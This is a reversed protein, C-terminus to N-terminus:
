LPLRPTLSKRMTQAVVTYGSTAYLTIARSNDGFVNLGIQDAGAARCWEETARLIAAGYGQGRLDDLVRIDYLWLADSEPRYPDPGIWAAGVPEGATSEATFIHHRPTGLGDPLNRKVGEAARHRAESEPMSASLAQVEDEHLIAAYNAYEAPTM